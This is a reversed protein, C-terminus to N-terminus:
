KLDNQKEKLLDWISKKDNGLVHIVLMSLADVRDDYKAKPFGKIETHWSSNELIDSIFVTKLRMYYAATQAREFKSKSGINIEQIDKIESKLASFIAPGMAKNEILIKPKIIQGRNKAMSIQTNYYSKVIPLADAFDAKFHIEDLITLKNIKDKAAFLGASYDSTEKGYVAFDFSIYYEKFESYNILDNNIFRFHENKFLSNTVDIPNQQLQAYSYDGLVLKLNELSEENIREPFLIEGKQKRFDLPDANDPDFEMPLILSDYNLENLCLDTVDYTELRQMILMIIGKDQQILRTPLTQRWWNRVEEHQTRTDGAKLLDDNLLIDFHLGTLKSGVSTAVRHGGATNRYDSKSIKKPQSFRVGSFYSQYKEGQMLKFSKWAFGESLSPTYSISCIKLEPNNAWLWAPYLISIITSKGISPPVNIVKRDGQNTNQLYDCIVEIVKSDVFKHTNGEVESFFHKVFYYFSRKCLESQVKNKLSKIQNKHM